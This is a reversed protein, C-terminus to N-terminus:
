GGCFIKRYKAYDNANIENRANLLQTTGGFEEITMQEIVRILRETDKANALQPIRVEFEGIEELGAAFRSTNRHEAFRIATTRGTRGAYALGGEFQQIAYITLLQTAGEKLLVVPINGICELVKEEATRLTAAYEEAEAGWPDILNVPSNSVYPYPNSSPLPDESLFRGIRPDYTRLRYYYLGTAADLERGTFTFPNVASGTVRQNGFADYVYRAVVNGTQNTIATVSGLGDM